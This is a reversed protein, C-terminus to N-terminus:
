LSFSFPLFHFYRFLLEWFSWQFGKNKAINVELNAWLSEQDHEDKAKARIFYEDRSSWTHSRQIIEESALPGIWNTTEGDGWDIM